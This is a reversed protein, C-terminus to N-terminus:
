SECQSGPQNAMAIATSSWFAKNFNLGDGAKAENATIHRILAMEDSESWICCDQKLEVLSADHQKAKKKTM